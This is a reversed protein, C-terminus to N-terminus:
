WHLFVVGFMGQVCVGNSSCKHCKGGAQIQALVAFFNSCHAKANGASSKGDFFAPSPFELGFQSTYSRSTSFACVHM